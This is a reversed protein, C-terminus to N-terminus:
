LNERENRTRKKNTSSIVCRQWIGKRRTPIKQNNLEDAIAQTTKGSQHLKM